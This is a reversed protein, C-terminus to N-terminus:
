GIWPQKKSSIYKLIAKAVFEWLNVPVANWIIQELTTKSGSWKFTKPFTQLYSRELTTLPRVNPDLEVPDWPHKIYWSPMPRNVGRITPSPEDISFIGRRAYSRPHRYYHEVWLSNWLYDRISMPTESLWESLFKDLFWDQDNLHGILFFRKRSQPVWCYSADLIVQTLGYWQEKFQKLAEPLLKTKTIRAVNEMVFWEPKSTCIIKTFSLTLDAKEGDENMKWASSFDQCPPWWIIMEPSERNIIGISDSAWLDCEYIPHQFNQKYIEIAPKWNDFAASIHFGAKQFGLSLWGCWSFLDIIKM